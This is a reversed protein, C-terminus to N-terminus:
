SKAVILLERKVWFMSFTVFCQEGFRRCIYKYKFMSIYLYIFFPFYKIMFVNFYKCMM